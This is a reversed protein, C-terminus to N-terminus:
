NAQPAGSGPSGCVWTSPGLDIFSSVADESCHPLAITTLRILSFADDQSLQLELNSLLDEFDPDFQTGKRVVLFTARDADLGFYAREIHAPNLAIWKSLRDMIATIQRTFEIVEQKSKHADLVDEMSVPYTTGDMAQLALRHEGDRARAWGALQTQTDM